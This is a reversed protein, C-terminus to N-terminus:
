HSYSSTVRGVRMKHVLSLVLLSIEKTMTVTHQEIDEKCLYVDNELSDTDRAEIGILTNVRLCDIIDQVADPTDVHATVLGTVRCRANQSWLHQMLKGRPDDETVGQAQDIVLLVIDGADCRKQLLDDLIAEASAYRVQNQRM